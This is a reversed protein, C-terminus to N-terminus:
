DEHGATHQGVASHVHTFDVNHEIELIGSVEELHRRITQCCAAVDAGELADTAGELYERIKLM